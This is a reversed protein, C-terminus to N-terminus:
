ATNFGEITLTTTETTTVTTTTSKTTTLTIKGVGFAKCLIDVSDQDTVDLASIISQVNAKPIPSSQPPKRSASLISRIGIANRKEKFGSKAMKVALQRQCEFKKGIAGRSAVKYTVQALSHSLSIGSGLTPTYLQVDRETESDPSESDSCKEASLLHRKEVKYVAGPNNYIRNAKRAATAAEEYHVPLTREPCLKGMVAKELELQKTGMEKSILVKAVSEVTDCFSYPGVEDTMALDFVYPNPSAPLQDFIREAEQVLRAVYGDPLSTEQPPSDFLQRNSLYKEHLFDYKQSHQSARKSMESAAKTGPLPDGDQGIESLDNVQYCFIPNTGFGHLSLHSCFSCRRKKRVSGPHTGKEEEGVVATHEVKWRTAKSGKPHTM